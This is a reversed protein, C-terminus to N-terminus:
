GFNTWQKSEPLWDHSKLIEGAKTLKREYLDGEDFIIYYGDELDDYIDGNDRDYRMVEVNLTADNIKIPITIQEMSLFNIADDFDEINESGAGNDHCLQILKEESWGLLILKGAPLIYGQCPATGMSM